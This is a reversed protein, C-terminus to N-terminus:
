GALVVEERGRAANRVATPVRLRPDTMLEDLGALSPDLTAEALRDFLEV